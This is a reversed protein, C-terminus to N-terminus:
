PKRLSVRGYKEARKQSQWKKSGKAFQAALSGGNAAMMSSSSDAPCLNIFVLLLAFAALVGAPAERLGARVLGAYGLAALGLAAVALPSNRSTFTGLLGFCIQQGGCRPDEEEEAKRALQPPTPPTGAELIM